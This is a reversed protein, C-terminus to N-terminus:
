RGQLRSLDEDTLGLAKLTQEIFQDITSNAQEKSMAAKREQFLESFKIVRKLLQKYRRDRTGHKFFVTPINTEDLAYKAYQILSSFSRIKGSELHHYINMLAETFRANIETQRGLYERHDPRYLTKTVRSVAPKMVGGALQSMRVSLTRVVNQELEDYTKILKENILLADTTSDLAVASMPRDVAADLIKAIRMAHTIQRQDIAERGMSALNAMTMVLIDRTALNRGQETQLQAITKRNVLELLLRPAFRKWDIRARGGCYRHISDMLAQSILIVDNHIQSSIAKTDRPMKVTYQGFGGGKLDDLAHRLEHVVSSTFGEKGRSDEPNMEITKTDVDYVAYSGTDKEPDIRISLINILQKIAPEKYNALSVLKSIKFPATSPRKLARGSFWDGFRKTLANTLDSSLQFLEQDESATENLEHARMTNYKHDRNLHAASM